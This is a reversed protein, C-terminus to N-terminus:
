VTATAKIKTTLKLDTIAGLPFIKTSHPAKKGWVAAFGQGTLHIASIILTEGNQCSPDLARQGVLLAEIARRERDLSAKADIM